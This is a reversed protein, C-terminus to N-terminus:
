SRSGLIMEFAVKYGDELSDTEVYEQRTHAGAGRFSGVCVSPIGMSLPINCDTSGARCRPTEGTVSSVAEVARDTLAKKRDPDVEGECPRVGIVECTIDAGEARAQDLTQVFRREMYDLNERRDSRFEYLMAAEQAITNVSTGGSIMGVNYTTRGDQPVQIRYLRDVLSSLQAIANDRGFDSYSHGGQTRVTVRFRKSGVARDVISSLSSDFTCFYEMRGGYERCIRRVGKLNGLGEEGANCVLLLGPADAGRLQRWQPTDIREAIYKGVLLLCVLCATDDGVGPCCIRGEEVRLPLETEDPFVVDTHAMFVEVPGEEKIDVPYVVNLAEDVYVGRAGQDKLWKSCFAARKEEHNSPAPIRALELLLEYAEQRHAEIYQVMDQTLM